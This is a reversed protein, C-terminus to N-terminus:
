NITGCFYWIAFACLGISIMWNVIGILEACCSFTSAWLRSHFCPDSELKQWSIVGGGRRWIRGMLCEIVNATWLFFFVPIRYCPSKLGHSVIEVQQDIGTRCFDYYDIVLEINFLKAKGVDLEGGGWGLGRGLCCCCWCWFHIFSISKRLIFYLFM